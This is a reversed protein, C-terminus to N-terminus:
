VSSSSNRSHQVHNIYWDLKIREYGNKDIAFDFCGQCELWGHRENYETGGCNPCKGSGVKSPDVQILVLM